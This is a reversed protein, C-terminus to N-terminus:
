SPPRQARARRAGQLVCVATLVVLAAASSRGSWDMPSPGGLLNRLHARPTALAMVGRGLGLVWDVVLLLPRGGGRKGLTAGLAFWGAYAASGLACAYASALADRAAPPDGAGHAVFALLAGLLGGAIVSAALAVGVIALATRAPSAGFAVLPAASAALSRTGLVAGVLTYVLLPLILPAYADVLVHDAGHVAGRWRAALAFGLALVCWAGPALLSRPTRVLRLASPRALGAIV